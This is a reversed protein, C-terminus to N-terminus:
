EEEPENTPGTTGASDDPGAFEYRTDLAAAPPEGWVDPPLPHPLPNTMITDTEKLM